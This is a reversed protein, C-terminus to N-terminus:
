AGSLDFKMLHLRYCAARYVLHCVSSAKKDARPAFPCSVMLALKFKRKATPALKALKRQIRACFAPSGIGPAIQCVPQHIRANLEIQGWTHLPVGISLVTPAPPLAIHGVQRVAKVAFSAFSPLVQDTARQCPRTRQPHIM